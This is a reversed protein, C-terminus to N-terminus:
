IMLTRINKVFFRLFAFLDFLQLFFLGADIQIKSIYLKAEGELFSLPLHKLPSRDKCLYHIQERPPSKLCANGSVFAIVFYFNEFAGFM